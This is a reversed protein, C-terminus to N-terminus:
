GFPGGVRLEAPDIMTAVVAQGAVANESEGINKDVSIIKGSTKSEVIENGVRAIPQNATVNDGVNM